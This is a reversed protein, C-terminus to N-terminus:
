TSFLEGFMALEREETEEEFARWLIRGNDDDDDCDGIVTMTMVMMMEETEVEFGELSACLVNAARLM